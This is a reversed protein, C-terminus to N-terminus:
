RTPSPAADLAFNEQMRLAYAGAATAAVFILNWSHSSVVSPIVVFAHQKLLADGFAQQGASPIGPRLRWNPVSAPDVVYVEVPGALALATLVHPVMDLATFGKHM